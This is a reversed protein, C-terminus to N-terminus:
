LGFPRMLMVCSSFFLPLYSSIPRWTRLWSCCLLGTLTIALIYPGRRLSVSRFHAVRKPVAPSCSPFCLNDRRLYALVLINYSSSVSSHCIHTVLPSGFLNLWSLPSTHRSLTVATCTHSLTICPNRSMCTCHSSDVHHLAHSFTFSQLSPQQSWEWQHRCKFNSQQLLQTPLCYFGNLDM